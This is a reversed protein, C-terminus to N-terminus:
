PRCYTEWQIRFLAADPSVEPAPEVQITSKEDGRVNVVVFRTFGHYAGFSNKANLEGCYAQWKEGSRYAADRFQASGPDKLDHILRGRAFTAFQVPDSSPAAMAVLPVFLLPALRM